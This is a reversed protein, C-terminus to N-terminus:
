SYLKYGNKPPSQKYLFDLSDHGTQDCANLWIELDNQTLTNLHALSVSYAMQLDSRDAGETYAKRLENFRHVRTKKQRLMQSVALEHYIWPSMTEGADKVTEEITISSPTNLFFLCECNDIMRTLATALMMHVHSTSYNRQTYDYTKTVSNYCFAKDIRKQLVSAHGWVCSDIFSSLGFSVHLWGAFSVALDKDKHAHSIFVDAKVQTFWDAQMKSANLVGNIDLYSDLTSEIRDQMLTHRALGQIYENTEFPDGDFSIKFGRYM